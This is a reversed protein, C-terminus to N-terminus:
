GETKTAEIDMVITQLTDIQHFIVLRAQELDAIISKRKFEGEGLDKFLPHVPYAQASMSESPKKNECFRKAITMTQVEAILGDIIHVAENLKAAEVVSRARAEAALIKPDEVRLTNVGRSPDFISNM